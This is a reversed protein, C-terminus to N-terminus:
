SSRHELAWARRQGVAPASHRPERSQMLGAPFTTAMASLARRSRIRACTATTATRAMAREVRLRGLHRSRSDAPRLHSSAAAGEGNLRSARPIVRAQVSPRSLPLRAPVGAPRGGSGGRCVRCGIRVSPVLPHGPDQALSGLNSGLELPGPRGLVGPQGPLLRLGAPDEDGRTARRAALRVPRRIPRSRFAARGRRPWSSPASPVEHRRRDAPAGLRPPSPPGCRGTPRRVRQLGPWRWGVAQRGASRPAPRGARRDSV